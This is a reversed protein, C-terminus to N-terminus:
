PQIHPVAQEFHQCYERNLNKDGRLKIEKYFACILAELVQLRYSTVQLKCGKGPQESVARLECSAASMGCSM